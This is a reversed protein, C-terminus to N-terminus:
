ELKYKCCLDFLLWSNCMSFCCCVILLKKSEANIKKKERKCSRPHQLVVAGRPVLVTERTVATLLGDTCLGEDWVFVVVVAHGAVLAPKSRLAAM